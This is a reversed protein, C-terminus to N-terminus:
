GANDATDLTGDVGGRAVHALATEVKGGVGVQYTHSRAETVRIGAQAMAHRLYYLTFGCLNPNEDDGYISIYAMSPPDPHLVIQECAWELSPTIIVIERAASAFMRMLGLIHKRSSQALFNAAILLDYSGDIKENETVRAGEPIFGQALGM